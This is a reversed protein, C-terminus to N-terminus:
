ADPGLRGSPRDAGFRELWVITASHHVGLAAEEWANRRQRNAAVPLRGGRGRPLFGAPRRARGALWAGATVGLGTAVGDQPRRASRERAAADEPAPGADDSGLDGVGFGDGGGNGAELMLEGLDFVLGLDRVSFGNGGGERREFALEGLSFM